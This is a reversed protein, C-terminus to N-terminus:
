KESRWTGIKQRIRKTGLAEDLDFFISIGSDIDTVELVRNKNGNFGSNVELDCKEYTANYGNLKYGSIRM